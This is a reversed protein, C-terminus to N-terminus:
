MSILRAFFQFRFVLCYIDVEATSNMCCCCSNPHINECLPPPAKEVWHRCTNSCLRWWCIIAAQIYGPLHFGPYFFFFTHLARSEGTENLEKRQACLLLQLLRETLEESRGNPGFHNSLFLAINASIETLFDVQFLLCSSTSTPNGRAKSNNDGLWHLLYWYHHNM